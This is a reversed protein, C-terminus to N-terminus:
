NNKMLKKIHTQNGGVNKTVLSMNASFGAKASKTPVIAILLWFTIIKHVQYRVYQLNRSNQIRRYFQNFPISFTPLTRDM